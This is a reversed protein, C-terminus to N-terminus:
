RLDLLFEFVSNCDSIVPSQKVVRPMSLGLPVSLQGTTPLGM